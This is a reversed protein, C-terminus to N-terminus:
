PQTFPLLPHWTSTFTLYSELQDRLSLFSFNPLEHTPIGALKHFTFLQTSSTLLLIRVFFTPPKSDYPQHYVVLSSAFPQGFFTVPPEWSRQLLWCLHDAFYAWILYGTSYHHHLHSLSPRVWSLLQHQQLKPKNRWNILYFNSHVM